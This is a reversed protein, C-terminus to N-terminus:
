IPVDALPIWAADNNLRGGGLNIARRHFINRAHRLPKTADCRSLLRPLFVSFRTFDLLQRKTSAALGCGLLAPERLKDIASWQDINHPAVNDVYSDRMVRASKCLISLQRPTAAIDVGSLM